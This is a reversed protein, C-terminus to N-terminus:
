TNLQQAQKNAQTCQMNHEVKSTSYQERFVRADERPRYEAESTLIAGEQDLVSPDLRGLVGKRLYLLGTARPGRLFKRGTATLMDCGLDEVDVALQGVSQCADLLYLVGHRRAIAGVERAPQM